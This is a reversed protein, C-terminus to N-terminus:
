KTSKGFVKNIQKLNMRCMGIVGAKDIHYITIYKSGMSKNFEIDLRGGDELEITKKTGKEQESTLLNYITEIDSERFLFSKYNTIQTFKEDIYTLECIGNDKTLSINLKGMLRIEGILEPVKTDSVKVQSLCNTVIALFLLANIIKKM